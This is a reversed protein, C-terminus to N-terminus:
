TSLKHRRTAEAYSQPGAREGGRKIDVFFLTDTPFFGQDVKLWAWNWCSEPQNQIVTGEAVEVASERFMARVELKAIVCSEWGQANARSVM